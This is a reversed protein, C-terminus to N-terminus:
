NGPQRNRAGYFKLSASSARNSTAAIPASPCILSKPPRNRPPRLSFIPTISPVIFKAHRPAVQLSEAAERVLGRLATIRETEGGNVGVQGIVLRSRLLPNHHLVEPRSYDRLASQVAAAFESESLVIVPEIPMPPMAEPFATLERQGLLELWAMPPVVRWDHGYVGYHKVEIVFDAQPLRSLDAYGFVNTWFDPNACPLFTFALGPTMLYHRVVFPLEPAALVNQFLDKEAIRGVFQAHRAARLRGSLQSSM